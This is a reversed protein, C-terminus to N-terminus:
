HTVVLKRLAIIRDTTELRVVYVGAPIGSLPIAIEQQENLPYMSVERGFADLLTVVVPQGVTKWRLSVTENAPNPFLELANEVTALENLGAVSETLMYTWVPTYIPGNADTPTYFDVVMGNHYASYVGPYLPEVATYLCHSNSYPTTANDVITSDDGGATMGTAQVVTYQKAYDWVDDNLHLFSFFRQTPTDGALFTWNAASSYYNSYDDAGAFMIM